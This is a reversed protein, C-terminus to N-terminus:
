HVFSMVHTTVFTVVEPIHPLASEVAYGITTHIAIVLINKTHNKLSKKLSHMSLLQNPVTKVKTLSSEDLQASVFKKKPLRAEQV